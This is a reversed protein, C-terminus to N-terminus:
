KFSYFPLFFFQGAFFLGVPNSLVIVPFIIDPIFLITIRIRNILQSKESFYIIENM